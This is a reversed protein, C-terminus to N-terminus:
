VKSSPGFERLIQEVSKGLDCRQRIGFLNVEVLRLIDGFHTYYFKPKEDNLGILEPADPHSRLVRDMVPFFLKGVEASENYLSTYYELAQRDRCTFQEDYRGRTGGKLAQQFLEESVLMRRRADLFDLSVNAESSNQAEVALFLANLDELYTPIAKMATMNGALKEEHWSGGHREDLREIAAITEKLTSPTHPTPQIPEPTYQSLLYIFGVLLIVAIVYPINEKGM